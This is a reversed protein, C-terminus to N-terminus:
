VGSTEKKEGANAVGYLGIIGSIFSLKMEGSVDIFFVVALLALVCITFKRGGIKETWRM